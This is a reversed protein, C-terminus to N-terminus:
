STGLIPQMAGASPPCHATCHLTLRPSPRTATYPERAFAQHWGCGELSQHRVDAAWAKPAMEIRDDMRKTMLIPQAVMPSCDLALSAGALRFVIVFRRSVRFDRPSPANASVLV